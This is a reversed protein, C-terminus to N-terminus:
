RELPQDAPLLPAFWPRSDLLHARRTEAQTADDTAIPPLSLQHRLWGPLQYARDPCLWNFVALAGHLLPVDCGLREVLWAWDIRDEASAFINFVDVWDCRERQMVYLKMRALEEVPAVAYRQNRLLISTAREFWAADVAFRHNPMEWIVDFIMGRHFGRFIWSRDYTEHEHYDSFGARQLASIAAARHDPRLIVDVDKTNRWHGTYTALALAGGLLYPVSAEDIASTGLRFIDWQDEPILTSWAGDITPEGQM